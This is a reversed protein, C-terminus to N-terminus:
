APINLASHWPSVTRYAKSMDGEEKRMLFMGKDIGEFTTLERGNYLDKLFHICRLKPTEQQYKPNKGDNIPYVYHTTSVASEFWDWLRNGAEENDNGGAFDWLHGFLCNKTGAKNKVVDITWDDDHTSELYNIFNRLTYHFKEDRADTDLEEYCDM